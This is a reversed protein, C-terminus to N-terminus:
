LIKINKGPDIIADYLYDTKLDVLCHIKFGWKYPKHPMYFRMKCRGRFFLMSEDITIDRSLIFYKQSNNIISNIYYFVKKRPDNENIIEDDMEEENNGLIKMKKKMIM